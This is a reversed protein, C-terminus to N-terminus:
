SLYSTDTLIITKMKKHVRAAKPFSRKVYIAVEGDGTNSIKIINPLKKKNYDPNTTIFFNAVRDEEDTWPEKNTSTQSNTAKQQSSASNDQDEDQSKRRIPDYMKAFHIARLEEIEPQDEPIERRCYIDIIDPKELFRGTRGGAVETGKDFNVDDEELKKM